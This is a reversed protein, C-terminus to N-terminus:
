TDTSGEIANMAFLSKETESKERHIKNMKDMLDNWSDHPDKTMDCKLARLEQERESNDLPPFAEELKKLAEKPELKIWNKYIQSSAWALAGERLQGTLKMMLINNPFNKSKARDLFM